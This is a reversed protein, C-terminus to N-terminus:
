ASVYKKMECNGHWSHRQHYQIVVAHCQCNSRCQLDIYLLICTYLDTTKQVISVILKHTQIHMIYGSIKKRNVYSYRWHKSLGRVCQSVAHTRNASFLHVLLNCTFDIIISFISSINLEMWPANYAPSYKAYRSLAERIDKYTQM